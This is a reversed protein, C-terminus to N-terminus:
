PNIAENVASNIVGTLFSSLSRRAQDAVLESCGNIGLTLAALALATIRRCFASQMPSEVYSNEFDTSALM